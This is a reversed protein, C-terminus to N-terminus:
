FSNIFSSDIYLWKWETTSNSFTTQIIQRVLQHDRKESAANTTFKFLVSSRFNREEFSYLVLHM